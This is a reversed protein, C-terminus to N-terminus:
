QRLICQRTLHRHHGAAPGADPCANAHRQGLSAGVHYDAWVAVEGTGFAGSLRHSRGAGLRQDVCAVHAVFVLDSGQEVGGHGPEAPDVDQDVIRSDGLWTRQQLHRGVLPVLRQVDIQPAHEQAGLTGGAFHDVAM